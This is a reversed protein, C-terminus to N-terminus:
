AFASDTARGKREGDSTIRLRWRAMIGFQIVQARTGPTTSSGTCRKTPAAWEISGAADEAYGDASAIASYILRAM